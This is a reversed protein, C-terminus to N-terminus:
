FYIISFLIFFGKNTNKIYNVGKKLQFVTDWKKRAKNMIELFRDLIQSFWLFVIKKSYFVIFQFWVNGSFIRSISAFIESFFQFRFFIPQPFTICFYCRFFFELFNWFSQFNLWFFLNLKNEVANFFNKWWSVM